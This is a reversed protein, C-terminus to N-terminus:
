AVTTLFLWLESCHFYLDYWECTFQYSITESTFSIVKIRWHYANIEGSLIFYFVTRLTKNGPWPRQKLVTWIWVPQGTVIVVKATIFKASSFLTGMTGPEITDHWYDFSILYLRLCKISPFFPAHFFSSFHHRTTLSSRDLDENSAWFTASFIHYISYIPTLPNPSPIICSICKFSQSFQGDNWKM